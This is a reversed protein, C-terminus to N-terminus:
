GEILYMHQKGTVLRPTCLVVDPCIFAKITSSLTVQRHKKPGSTKSQVLTLASASKCQTVFELFIQLKLHQGIAIDGDLTPQCALM